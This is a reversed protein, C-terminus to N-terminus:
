KTSFLDIDISRRHGIYLSLATGGVLYFDGLYEKNQLTKILELTSAKVAETHLM